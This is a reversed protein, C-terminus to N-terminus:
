LVARGLSLATPLNWSFHICYHKMHPLPLRKSWKHISDNQHILYSLSLFMQLSTPSIRYHKSEGSKGFISVPQLEFSLVDFVLSFRAIVLQFEDSTLVPLQLRYHHMKCPPHRAGVLHSITYNPFDALGVQSM